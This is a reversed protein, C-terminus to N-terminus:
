GVKETQLLCCGLTFHQTLHIVRVAWCQALTFFVLTISSILKIIKPDEEEQGDLDYGM